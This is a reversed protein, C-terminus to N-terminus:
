KINKLTPINLLLEQSIEEPNFLMPYYTGEM